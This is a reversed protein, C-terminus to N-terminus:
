VLGVVARRRTCLRCVEGAEEAETKRHGRTHDHGGLGERGVGGMARGVRHGFLDQRRQMREDSRNLRDGDARRADRFVKLAGREGPLVLRHEVDAAAVSEGRRHEV